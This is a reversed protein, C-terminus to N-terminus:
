VETYSVHINQPYQEMLGLMHLRFGELISQCAEQQETPVRVLMYGDEVATEANARIVDTITNATMYAASSVAACIIDRGALGNHGTVCFGILGGNKSAFFEARIM